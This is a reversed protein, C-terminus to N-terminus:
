ARSKSALVVWLSRMSLRWLRRSTAVSPSTASSSMGRSYQMRGPARCTIAGHSDHDMERIQMEPADIVRQERRQCLAHAGHLRVQHHNGAVQGLARFRRLEAVRPAKEIRERSRQEDHRPVVVHREVVEELAEELREGLVPAVDRLLGLRGEDVVLDRDDPHVRRARRCELASADVGPLEGAHSLAKALQVIADGLDHHGVMREIKRGTVVRAMEDAARPLRHRHERAAAGVDQQGTMQM